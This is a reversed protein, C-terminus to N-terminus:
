NSPPLASKALHVTVKFGLKQFLFQNLHPKNHTFEYKM